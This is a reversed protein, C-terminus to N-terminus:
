EADARSGEWSVVMRILFGRWGLQVLMTWVNDAKEGPPLIVACAQFGNAETFQANNLALQTLLGKFYTPLYAQRALLPRLNNRPRTRLSLHLPHRNPPRLSHSPTLPLISLPSLPFILLPLSLGRGSTTLTITDMQMEPLNQFNSLLFNPNPCSSNHSRHHLSTIPRKIHNASFGFGFAHSPLLV